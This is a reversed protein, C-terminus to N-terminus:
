FSIKRRQPASQRDLCDPLNASSEPPTHHDTIITELGRARAYEVEGKNRIGGDVTILLKAGKKIAKDIAERHLGYGESGRDPIYVFCDARLTALVEALLASATMGDADYDGYICIKDGAKIHTITLNIAEEMKNFLFPSFNNEFHGHLFLDMEESERLGRNHLLQLIVRDYEPFKKFFGERIKPAIQWIKNM